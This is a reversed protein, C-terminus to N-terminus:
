AAPALASYIVERLGAPLKEVASGGDVRAFVGEAWVWRRVAALADSYTVGVKGPWEISGVRRRAPLENYLSAVVSYLGFLCPTVRLVTERCWGRTTELHLCSRVEEFTTEITWRGTYYGILQEVSMGVDTTYFYEDRHTGERDRVFVWHIPVLGKGSKFWHGTGSSTEVQRTGGGYWGVTRRKLQRTASVAERPKALRKGKVAPRGKGKYTPAPEFLNAEPHLKSVLSLQNRHRHVFRAVEHTGYASDGVFVFRRGPFWHLMLALLRIMHQAPTRHRHGQGRDAEESQYLAVLIPLAWPRNAFPFRVLVALVVWKHGYRWATFAHSSRVPDRHRAKGFVHPGPHAVVTDDGVLVIPQDEPLLTVLYRTLACALRIMSWRAQSFVRRYSSPHGPALTTATRLLNAITRRGTTIIAAGLLVLFRRSTPRTFVKTLSAFLARSDDPLIAM